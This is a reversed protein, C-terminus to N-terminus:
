DYEHVFNCLGDKSISISSMDTGNDTIFIMYNSMFYYKIAKGNFGEKYVITINYKDIDIYGVGNENFIDFGWNYFNM